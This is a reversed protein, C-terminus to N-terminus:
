PAPNENGNIKSAEQRLVAATVADPLIQKSTSERHFLRNKERGGALKTAVDRHSRRCFRLNDDTVGDM